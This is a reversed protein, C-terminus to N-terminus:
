KQECVHVPVAEAGMDTAGEAANVADAIKVDRNNALTQLAMQNVVSSDQKTLERVAMTAYESTGLTFSFVLAHFKESELASGLKKELGGTEGETQRDKGSIKEEEEVAVGMVGETGSIKPGEVGASGGNPSPVVDSGTQAPTVTSARKSETDNAAKGKSHGSHKDGLLDAVVSPIIRDDRASYSVIEAEVDAPRAVLWRYTGVMNQNSPIKAMSIKETNLLELAALGAPNNPPAVKSGIVPILVHDLPISKVSAEEATVSRVELDCNLSCSRSHEEKLVLDGEVAFPVRSDRIRMSAMVNWLHSQVAHGYMTKMNRPLTEFATRYDREKGRSEMDALSSVLSRELSRFPPLENLLDKAKVTGALFGRCADDMKKREPRLAEEGSAVAPIVVPEMIRRCAEEYDSRLVAFGIDHTGFAGSGFRQLGFYNIFGRERLSAVASLVNERAGEARLDLERLALTFRNGALDGLMFPKARDGGLVEFDGVAMLRAGKTKLLGENMEELRHLPVGRVRVRQTTIGRKDKNGAHSIIDPNVRLRTSIESLAGITDKGSKWLVFEVFQGPRVRDQGSGGRGKRPRENRAGKNNRPDYTNDKMADENIEKEADRDWDPGSETKRRKWPRCAELLRLRICGKGEDTDVTDTVFKPAHVKVWAHVARRAAKDGLPPLVLRTGYDGERKGTVLVRIDEVIRAAEGLEAELTAFAKDWDTDSLTVVDKKAEKKKEARSLRAGRVPVPVSTLHVVTGDLRVENVVFDSVKAKVVASVPSHGVGLFDTIGVSIESVGM